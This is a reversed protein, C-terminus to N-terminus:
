WLQGTSEQARYLRRQEHAEQSTKRAHCAKCLSQVNNQDFRAAEREPGPMFRFLPIIHDVQNAVADCADPWGVCLPNQALWAARFRRWRATSGSQWSSPKNAWPRPSCSECRPGTIAEGCGACVRPPRTPM